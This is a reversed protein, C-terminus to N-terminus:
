YYGRAYAVTQTEAKIKGLEGAIVPITISTPVGFGPIKPSGPAFKTAGKSGVDRFWNGISNMEAAWVTSISEMDIPTGTTLATGIIGATSVLAGVIPIPASKPLLHPAIQKTGETLLAAAKEKAIRDNEAAIKARTAALTKEAAAKRNRAAILLKEAQSGKKPPLAKERHRKVDAPQIRTKGGTARNLGITAKRRRNLAAQLPSSPTIPKRTIPSTRGQFRSTLVGARHIDSPLAYDMHFGPISGSGYFSRYGPGNDVINLGDSRRMTFPPPWDSM